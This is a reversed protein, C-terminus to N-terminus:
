QKIERRVCRVNFEENIKSEFSNGYLFDIAVKNNYSIAVTNTWYTSDLPDNIKYPDLIRKNRFVSMLDRQNPLEWVFFISPSLNSCYNNAGLWNRKVGDTIKQWILGTSADISTRIEPNIIKVLTNKKLSSHLAIIQENNLKNDIIENINFKKDVGGQEFLSDTYILAFGKSSYLRKEKSSVRKDTKYNACAGLLLIVCFLIIKKTLNM